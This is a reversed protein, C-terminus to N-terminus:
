KFVSIIHFVWYFVPSSGLSFKVHHGSNSWAFHLILNNEARFSLFGFFCRLVSPIDPISQPFAPHPPQHLVYIGCKSCLILLSTNSPSWLDLGSEQELAPASLRSSNRASQFPFVSTPASFRFSHSSSFLMRHLKRKQQPNIQPCLCLVKSLPLHLRDQQVM